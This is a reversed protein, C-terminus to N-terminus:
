TFTLYDPDSPDPTITGGTATLYDPDDPDVTVSGGGGGTGGNAWALGGSASRTLVQGATGGDPLLPMLARLRTVLQGVLPDPSTM